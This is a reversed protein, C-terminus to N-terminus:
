VTFKDTFKIMEGIKLLFEQVESSPSKTGIFHEPIDCIKALQEYVIKLFDMDVSIHVTRKITVKIEM